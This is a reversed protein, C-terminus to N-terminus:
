KALSGAGVELSFANGALSSGVALDGYGTLSIRELLASALGYTEEGACM